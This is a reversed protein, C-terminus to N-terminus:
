EFPDRERKASDSESRMASCYCCWFITAAVNPVFRVAEAVAIL